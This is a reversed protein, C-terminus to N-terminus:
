IVLIADELEKKKSWYFMGTSDFTFDKVPCGTEDDLLQMSRKIIGDRHNTAAIHGNSPKIGNPNPIISNGQFLGM